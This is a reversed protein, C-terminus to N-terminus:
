CPKGGFVVDVRRTIRQGRLGPRRLRRQGGGEHGTLLPHRLQQQAVAPAVENRGPGLVLEATGERADLVVICRM